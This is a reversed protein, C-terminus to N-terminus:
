PKEKINKSYTRLALLSKSIYWAYYFCLFIEIPRGIIGGKRILGEYLAVIPMFFWKVLSFREGKEFRSKGELILYRNHKKFLDEFNDVWYHKVINNGTYNIKGISTGQHLEISRHVRDYFDVRKKNIIKNHFYRVGGWVTRKLPRDNFYYQIPVAVVSCDDGPALALIDDMLTSSYVEDPDVHLVWDYKMAPILTPLIMEVIPVWPKRIVKVGLRQAIEVSQDRSGLDVVVLEDLRKLPILCAELYKEDNYTIVLASIKM